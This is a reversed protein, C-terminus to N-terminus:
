ASIVASYATPVTAAQPKAASSYLTTVLPATDEASDARIV